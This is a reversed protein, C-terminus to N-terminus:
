ACEGSPTMMPAINMIIVLVAPNVKQPPHVIILISREECSLPHLLTVHPFAGEGGGPCLAGGM